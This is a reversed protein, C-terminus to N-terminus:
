GLSPLSPSWLDNWFFCAEECLQWMSRIGNSERQGWSPVTGLGLERGDNKLFFPPPAFGQMM